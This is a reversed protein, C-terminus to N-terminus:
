PVSIRSASSSSEVQRNDSMWLGASYIRESLLLLQTSFRKIACPHVFLGLFLLASLLVYTLGSIYDSPHYQNETEIIDQFRM